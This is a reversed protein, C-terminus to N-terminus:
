EPRFRPNKEATLFPFVAKQMGAEFVVINDPHRDMYAPQINLPESADKEQFSEIVQYQCENEFAADVAQHAADRIRKMRTEASEFHSSRDEQPIRNYGDEESPPFTGNSSSSASSDGLLKQFIAEQLEPKTHSSPSDIGFEKAKGILGDGGARKKRGLIEVQTETLDRDALVAIKEHKKLSGYSIDRKRCRDNLDSTSEYVLEFLSAM